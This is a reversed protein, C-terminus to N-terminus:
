VYLADQLGPGERGRGGPPSWVPRCTLHHRSDLPATHLPSLAPGPGLGQWGWDQGKHEQRGSCDTCLCPLWRGPCATSWSGVPLSLLAQGMAGPWPEQLCAAPRCLCTVRPVQAEAEQPAAQVLPGSCLHSVPGDAPAALSRPGLGPLCGSGERSHVSCAQGEGM